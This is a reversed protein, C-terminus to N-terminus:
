ELTAAGTPIAIFEALVLEDSTVAAAPPGRRIWPWPTERTGRVRPPQRPLPRHSACGARGAM